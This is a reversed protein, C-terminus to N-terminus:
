KASNHHTDNAPDSQDWHDNSPKRLAVSVWDFSVIFQMCLIDLFLIKKRKRTDCLFLFKLYKLPHCFVLNLKKFYIRKGKNEFHFQHMKKILVSFKFSSLLSIPYISKLCGTSVQWIQSQFLQGPDQQLHQPLGRIFAHGGQQPHEGDWQVREAPDGQEGCWGSTLSHSVDEASFEELSEEFLVAESRKVGNLILFM